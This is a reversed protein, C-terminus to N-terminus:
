KTGGAESTVLDAQTLSGNLRRIVRWSILAVLFPSLIMGGLLVVGGYGSGERSACQPCALVSQSVFIMGWFLAFGVKKPFNM